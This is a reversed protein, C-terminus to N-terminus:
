QPAPHRRVLAAVADFPDIGPGRNRVASDVAAVTQRLDGGYAVLASDFIGLRTRYIRAAILSANNLPRHELWAAPYAELAPGISTTMERHADAYIRARARALASDREPGAFLSDLRAALRAYFAGLLREDHWIAWAAHTHVSDGRVAFFREAGHYGVFSAYSEDFETAGAVYLTAHTSEHIVTAVLETSDARLATSLLPDSFWGLTSFADSPRLYTDFGRADLRAAADRAAALSFYGHYPVAGVIPFHWLYPALRDRPSASLVLVLTDRGVPAFTTYTDGVHLGLGVRAFTRAELVLTLKARRAPPTSSDAVLAAIPRRALLIRAEEYAARAVFRVDRSALLAFAIIVTVAGVFWLAARRCGHKARPTM